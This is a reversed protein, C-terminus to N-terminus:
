AWTVEAGDRSGKGSRQEGEREVRSGVEAGERRERELGEVRCYWLGSARYWGLVGEDTGAFQMGTSPHTRDQSSLDAERMFAHKWPMGGKVCPKDQCGLGTGADTGSVALVRTPGM